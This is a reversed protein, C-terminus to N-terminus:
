LCVNLMYQQIVSTTLSNDCIDTQNSKASFELASLIYFLRRHTRLLPYTRCFIIDTRFEPGQLM